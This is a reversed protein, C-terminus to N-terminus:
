HFRWSSLWPSPSGELSLKSDRVFSEMLVQNDKNYNICVPYQRSCVQKADGAGSMAIAITSNVKGHEITEPDL